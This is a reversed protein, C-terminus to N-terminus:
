EPLKGNAINLAQLIAPTIREIGPRDALYIELQKDERVLKGDKIIEVGTKGDKVFVKLGPFEGPEKDPILMMGGQANNLNKLNVKTQYTSGKFKNEILLTYNEDVFINVEGIGPVKGNAKRYEEQLPVFSQRVRELYNSEELAVAKLQESPSANAPVDPSNAEVQQFNSDKPDSNCAFFMAVALSFMLKKMM